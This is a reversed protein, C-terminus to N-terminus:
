RIVIINKRQGQRYARGIAQNETSLAAPALAEMQQYETDRYKPLM